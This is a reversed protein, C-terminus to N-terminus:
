TCLRNVDLQIALGTPRLQSIQEFWGFSNRRRSRQQTVTRDERHLQLLQQQLVLHCSPSMM